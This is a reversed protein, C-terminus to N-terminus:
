STKTYQITVNVADFTGTGEINIIYNSNGRTLYVLPNNAQTLSVAFYSGSALFNYGNLAYDYDFNKKRIVCSNSIGTDAGNTPNVFTKEYLTEGFWTGIVKENSDYHVTPMATPTLKGSGATDTTKTYQITITNVTVGAMGNMYVQLYNGNIKTLLPTQYTTSIIGICNICVDVNISSIDIANVWDATLAVSLGTWTRQYLPKGDIWCGVERENTDYCASAYESLFTIPSGQQIGYVTIRMGYSPVSGNTQLTFVQGKKIFLEFSSSTNYDLGVQMSDVLAEFQTTGTARCFAKVYCDQNATYSYPNVTINDNNYIVNDTDIFCGNAQILGSYNIGNSIIKGM